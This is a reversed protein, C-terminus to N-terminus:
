FLCCVQLVEERDLKEKVLRVRNCAHEFEEDGSSPDSDLESLSYGPGWSKM